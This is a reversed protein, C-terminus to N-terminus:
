ALGLYQYQVALHLAEDLSQLHILADASLPLSANDNNNDDDADDAACCLRRSRGISACMSWWCCDNKRCRVRNMLWLGLQIKWEGVALRVIM